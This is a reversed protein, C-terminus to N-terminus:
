QQKIRVMGSILSKIEGEMANTNSTYNRQNNEKRWSPSVGARTTENKYPNFEQM